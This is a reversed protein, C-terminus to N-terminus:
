ASAPLLADCRRLFLSAGEAAFYSRALELQSLHGREAALLRAWAEALGAGISAYTEAAEAFTGAALATAAIHWPNEAPIQEFMSVTLEPRELEAAVLPAYTWTDFTEPAAVFAELMAEAEARRNALLLVLARDARTGLMQPDGIRLANELSVDSDALAATLDGRAARAIARCALNGAVQYQNSGTVNDLVVTALEEVDRLRGRLIAAYTAEGELWRLVGTLGFRHALEFNAELCREAEDFRGV